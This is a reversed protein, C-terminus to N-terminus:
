RTEDGLKRVRLNVMKALLQVQNVTQLKDTRLFADLVAEAGQYFALLEREDEIDTPITDPVVRSDLNGM